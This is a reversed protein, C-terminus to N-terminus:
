EHKEPIEVEFPLDELAQLLSSYEKDTYTDFRIYLCRHNKCRDHMKKLDERRLRDEKCCVDRGDYSIRNCYQKKNDNKM